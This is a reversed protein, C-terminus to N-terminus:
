DAYFILFNLLLKSCFALSTLTSNQLLTGVTREVVVFPTDVFTWDLYCRNFDFIFVDFYFLTVLCFTSPHWGRWVSADPILADFTIELLFIGFDVCLSISLWASRASFLRRVYTFNNLFTFEFIGLGVLPLVWNPGCFTINMCQMCTFHWVSLWM